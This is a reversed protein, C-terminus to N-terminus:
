INLKNLNQTNQKFLKFNFNDLASCKKVSNDPSIAVFGQLPVDEISTSMCVLKSYTMKEIENLQELFLINSFHKFFLGIDCFINYSLPTM